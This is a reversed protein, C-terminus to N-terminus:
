KAKAKTDAGAKKTRFVMVNNAGEAEARAFYIASLIYKKQMRGGLWGAIYTGVIPIFEAVVGQFMALPVAFPVGLIQLVIFIVGGNILALLMRSYFYGGTKDIALNWAWLLAVLGPRRTADRLGRALARGIM